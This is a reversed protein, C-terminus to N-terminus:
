YMDIGHEFLFSDEDKGDLKSGEFHHELSAGPKAPRLFAFAM